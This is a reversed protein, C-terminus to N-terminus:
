TGEYEPCDVTQGKLAHHSDGLFVLKGPQDGNPGGLFLHCRHLPDDQNVLLSPKFVPADFSGNWTWQPRYTPDGGVHYPHDYGCGPCHFVFLRQSSGTKIEHLKAM